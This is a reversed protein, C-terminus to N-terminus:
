ADPPCGKVVDSAWFLIDREKKTLKKKGLLLPKGDLYAGAVREIVAPLPVGGAELSSARKALFDDLGLRWECGLLWAHDAELDFRFLDFVPAFIFLLYFGAQFLRRRWQLRRAAPLPAVAIPIVRRPASVSPRSPTM